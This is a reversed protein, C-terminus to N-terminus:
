PSLRTPDATGITVVGPVRYALGETDARANFERFSRRRFQGRDRGLTELAARDGHSWAWAWWQEADAFVLECVDLKSRIDVFGARALGAEVSGRDHRETALDVGVGFDALLADYWEWSEDVGGSYALGVAGRVRLVRRFERLARQLDPFLFIAFSCTVYDFSAQAFPLGEADGVVVDCNSLRAARIEDLAREAMRPSLDLGTVSGRPGVLSAARSLVEGSGTAVDLVRSGATIQLADVLRRAFYSFFSPGVRNYTEAAASYVAAIRAKPWEEAIPRRGGGPHARFVPRALSM